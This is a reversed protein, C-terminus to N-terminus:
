PGAATIVMSPFTLDVYRLDAPLEAAREALFTELNKLATCDGPDPLSLRAGGTRMYLNVKGGEGHLESLNAYVTPFEERLRALLQVVPLLTARSQPSFGTLIPLDVSEASHARPFVEGESDVLRLTEGALAAVPVREELQIVLKGPLRRYARARRVGPVAAARAAVSDLSLRMLNMSRSLGCAAVVDREVLRRLGVVEVQELQSWATGALWARVAHSGVAVLAVTASIAALGGAIALRRRRARHDNSSNTKRFAM